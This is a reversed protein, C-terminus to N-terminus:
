ALFGPINGVFRNVVSQEATILKSNDTLKYVWRVRRNLSEPCDVMDMHTGHVVAFFHGEVYVIFRGHKLGPLADALTSKKFAPCEIFGLRQLAAAYKKNNFGMGYRRGADRCRRHAGDYSLGTAIALARVACDRKEDAYRGQASVQRFPVPRSPRDKVTTRLANDAYQVAATGNEFVYANDISAVPEVGSKPAYFGSALQLVCKQSWMPVGPASRIKYKATSM